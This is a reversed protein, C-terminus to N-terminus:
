LLVEDLTPFILVKLVVYLVHILLARYTLVHVVGIVNAACSWYTIQFGKKVLRNRNPALIRTM